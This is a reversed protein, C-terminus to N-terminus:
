LAMLERASLGEAKFDLVHCLKATVQALQKSLHQM